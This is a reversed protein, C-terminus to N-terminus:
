SRRSAAMNEDTCSEIRFSPEYSKFRGLALFFREVLFYSITALLLSTVLSFLTVMLGARTELSPSGNLITGHLLGSVAQHFLYLSYSILGLFRLVPIRLIFVSANGSELVAIMVLVAYFGALLLHDPALGIIVNGEFATIAIPLALTLLSIRLIWPNESLYRRIEFNRVMGAGLAGLLFADMRCPTPYFRFSSFDPSRVFSRLIPASFTLLIAVAIWHKRPVILCLFPVVLYFQEEVALSWTVGLFNGGDSDKITMLINQTFTLYSWDPKNGAFLWEYRTTSLTGRLAFFAALLLCYVPIIRLSRRTYFVALFNKSRRNDIIIGGILFGSLVFFLDVGSWSWSTVKALEGIPSQPPLDGLQCNFYHWLIVMSIAIGRIGDLEPVRKVKGPALNRLYAM